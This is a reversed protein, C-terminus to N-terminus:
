ESKYRPNPIMKNTFYDKIFAKNKKLDSESLKFMILSTKGKPVMEFGDECGCAPTSDLQSEMDPEPSCQQNSNNAEFERSAFDNFGNGTITKDERINDFSKTEILQKFRRSQDAENLQSTVIYRKNMKKAENDENSVFKKRALKVNKNYAEDLQSLEGHGTKALEEKSNVEADGHMGITYNKTMGKPTNLYGPEMDVKVNYTGDERIMRGRKKHMEGYPTNLIAENVRYEKPQNDADAVVSGEEGKSTVGLSRTNVPTGALTPFAGGTSNEKGAPNGDTAGMPGGPSMSIEEVNEGDTSKEDDGKLLEKEGEETDVKVAKDVTTDEQSETVLKHIAEGTSEYDGELLSKLSMKFKNEMITSANQNKEIKDGQGIKTGSLYEAEAKCIESFMTEIKKKFEKSDSINPISTKKELSGSNVNFGSDETNKYTIELTSGKIDLYIESVLKKGGFTTIKQMNSIAPATDEDGSYKKPYSITVNVKDEATGKGGSKEEDSEKDTEKAYVFYHGEKETYGLEKFAKYTKEEAVQKIVKDVLKKIEKRKSFEETEKKTGEPYTKEQAMSKINKKYIDLFFPKQQFLAFSFLRM